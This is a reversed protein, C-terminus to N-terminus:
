KGAEVAVTLQVDDGIPGVMKGMGFDSRKVTFTTEWGALQRGKMEGTGVRLVKLTVPKTEGHLTLDGTLETTDADIAKAATSKFTIEPFQKSNFFDPSKLHGDRKENATDVSDTKVVFSASTLATGDAAAEVSGSLDNFRGYSWSAGMHKIKFLVISHVADVEWKVSEPASRAERVNTFAVAASAAVVLAPVLFRKM